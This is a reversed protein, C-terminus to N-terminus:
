KKFLMIGIVVVALVGVVIFIPSIGGTAANAAGGTASVSGPTYSGGGAPPTVGAALYLKNKIAAEDQGPAVTINDINALILDKQKQTLAM